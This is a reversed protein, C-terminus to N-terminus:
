VSLKKRKRGDKEGDSNGLRNKEKERYNLFMLENKKRRQQSRRNGVMVEISMLACVCKRACVTAQAGQSYETVPQLGEMDYSACMQLSSAFGGPPARASGALLRSALSM